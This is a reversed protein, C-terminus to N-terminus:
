RLNRVSVKWQEQYQVLMAKLIPKEAKNMIPHQYTGALVRLGGMPNGHHAEWNAMEWRYQLNSPDFYIAAKWFDLVTQNQQEPNLKLLANDKIALLGMRYYVPANEPIGYLAQHYEHFAQNVLRLAHQPHTSKFWKAQMTDLQAQLVFPGPNAPDVIRLLQNCGLLTRVQLDKPLYSEVWTQSALTVSILLLLLRSIFEFSMGVGAVLELGLRLKTKAQTIVVPAPGFVQWARALFLGSLIALPMNYFIFNGVAHGAIVFVGLILGFAELKRSDRTLAKRLKRILRLLTWFLGGALALLFALNIPGGEMLFQLYDNHAYTGASATEGALRFHPYWLFYTGLGSGLWPHQLYMNWTAKWMLWRSVTSINHGIFNPTLHNVLDFNRSWQFVAFAGLSIMGILLLRKGANPQRWFLWLVWPWTCLWSLLGGRSDTSFDALLLLTLLGLWGWSEWKLSAKPTQDYAQLRAMWILLGPFFLMNMWASFSNTDLLPGYPRLGAPSMGIHKWYLYQYFAWGVLILASGFIGRRLWAWAQDQDRAEWSETHWVWALFILPFSGLIWVYLWSTYPASSWLVSILFWLFWVALVAPLWGQRYRPLATLRRLGVQSLWFVLGLSTLALLSLVQDDCRWSLGYVLLALAAPWMNRLSMSRM